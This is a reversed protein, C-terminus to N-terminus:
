GLFVVKIKSKVQAFSSESKKEMLSLNNDTINLTQQRFDYGWFLPDIRVNMNPPFKWKDVKKNIARAILIMSKGPSVELDFNKNHTTPEIM